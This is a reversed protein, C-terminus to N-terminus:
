VGRAVGADDVGDGFAREHATMILGSKGGGEGGEEVRLGCDDVNATVGAAKEGSDAAEVGGSAEYAGIDVGLGEVGGSAAAQANVM